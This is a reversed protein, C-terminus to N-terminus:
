AADRRSYEPGRAREVQESLAEVRRQDNSRAAGLAMKVNLDLLSLLGEYAAWLRQVIVGIFGGAVGVYFTQIDHSQVPLTWLLYSQPLDNTSAIKAGIVGVTACAAMVFLLAWFGLQARLARGYRELRVVSFSEGRLVTATIVMAPLLGAMLLSLFSIIEQSAGIVGTRPATVLLTAGVAFALFTRVLANM